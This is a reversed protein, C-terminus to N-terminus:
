EFGMLRRHASLYIPHPAALKDAPLRIKSGEWGHIFEYDEHGPVDHAVMVTYDDAITIWGVDLAWHHMRCLCIGNRVDDKGDMTSLQGLM